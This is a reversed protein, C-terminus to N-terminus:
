HFQEFHASTLVGLSAYAELAKVDPAELSQADARALVFDYRATFRSDGFTDSDPNIDLSLQRLTENDPPGMVESMDMIDFPMYRLPFRLRHTLPLPIWVSENHINHRHLHWGGMIFPIRGDCCGEEAMHAIMNPEHSVQVGTLRDEKQKVETSM